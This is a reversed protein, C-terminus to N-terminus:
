IKSSFKYIKEMGSSAIFENKDQNIVDIDFPKVITLKKTSNIKNLPLNIEKEKKCLPPFCCM